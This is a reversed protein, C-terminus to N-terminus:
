KIKNKVAEWAKSCNLAGSPNHHRIAQQCYSLFVCDLAALQYANRKGNQLGKWATEVMEARPFEGLDSCAKLYDLVITNLLPPLFRITM